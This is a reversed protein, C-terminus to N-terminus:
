ESTRTGQALTGAGGVVPLSTNGLEGVVDDGHEGTVLQSRVEGGDTEDEGARHGMGAGAMPPPIMGGPLASSGSRAVPTVADGTAAPAAAVAGATRGNWQSLPTAPAGMGGGMPVGGVAGPAAGAIDSLKQDTEEPQLTGPQSISQVHQQVAQVGTGGLSVLPQIMGLLQSVQSLADVGKPADTVDVKDGAQTMSVSHVGLEARTKAVVATAEAATETALTMLFVQGPPTVLFPASVTIGTVFKAIIGAMSAAGTGVTVAAGGLVTKQQASQAQIKGADSAAATGKEAASSAGGGQWMSSALQMITTALTMGQQLAQAVGNLAQVPDIVAAPQGGEGNTPATQGVTDLQGTGFAAAMDTLPRALAALDIVPLPPLDPLPPAPPLQPLAPIGMDRLIDNIPRDLMPGLASTRLAELVTPDLPGPM